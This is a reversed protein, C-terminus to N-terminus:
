LRTIEENLQRIIDFKQLPFVEPKSDIEQVLDKLLNKYQLVFENDGHASTFILNSKSLELVAKFAKPFPLSSNVFVEQMPIGDWKYSDMGDEKHFQFWEVASRLLVKAETSLTLQNILESRM